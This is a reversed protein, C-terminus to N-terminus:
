NMFERFDLGGHQLFPLRQIGLGKWLRAAICRDFCGDFM